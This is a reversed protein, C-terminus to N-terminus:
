CSKKEKEEKKKKLFIYTVELNKLELKFVNVDAKEHLAKKYGARRVKPKAGKARQMVNSMDESLEDESFSEASLEADDDDDGGASAPAPASKKAHNSGFRIKWKSKKAARPQISVSAPADNQAAVM